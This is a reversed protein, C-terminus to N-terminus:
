VGTVPEGPHSDKATKRARPGELDDALRQLILQVGHSADDSGIEDFRIRSLARLQAATEDATDELDIWFLPDATTRDPTRDTSDIEAM